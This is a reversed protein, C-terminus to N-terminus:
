QSTRETEAASAGVSSGSTGPTEDAPRRDPQPTSHGPAPPRKEVFWGARRIHEAIRRATLQATVETGDAWRLLGRCRHRLAFQITTELPDEPLPM